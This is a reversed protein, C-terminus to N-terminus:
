FKLLSVCLLQGHPTCHEAYNTIANMKNTDFYKRPIRTSVNLFPSKRNYSLNFGRTCHILWLYFSPCFQLSQSLFPDTCRFTSAAWKSNTILYKVTSHAGPCLTVNLIRSREGRELIPWMGSKTLHTILFPKNKTKRKVSIM